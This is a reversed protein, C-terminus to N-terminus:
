VAVAPVSVRRGGRAPTSQFTLNLLQSAAPLADGAVHPRPNFCLVTVFFRSWLLDGAVHPRPNFCKSVKYLM